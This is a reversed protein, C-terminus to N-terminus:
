RDDEQKAESPSRKGPKGYMRLRVEACRKDLESPYPERELVSVALPEGVALQLDMAIHFWGNHRGTEAIERAKKLIRKEHEKLTAM